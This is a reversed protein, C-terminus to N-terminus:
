EEEEKYYQNDISYDDDFEEKNEFLNNKWNKSSKKENFKSNLSKRGEDFHDFEKREKSKIKQTNKSQKM